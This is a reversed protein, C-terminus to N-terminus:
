DVQEISSLPARPFADIFSCPTSNTIEVGRSVAYRQVNHYSRFAIAFSEVIDHLRYNRYATDVRQQEGKDDKYFHPQVSIVNNADDVSITQMWSHDAGVIYIKKYGLWMGCMLAPVLVNRPRPMGRRRNYAVRELWAYGEVGVFNFTNVTIFSNGELLRSVTKACKVPVFLTMPWDVSRLREYLKRVNESECERFFLPDALVHYKPCIEFFVDSLPAFNVSLADHALLIDKNEEITTNLSPGNALVILTGEKGGDIRAGRSLVAM